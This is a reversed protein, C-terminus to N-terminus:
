PANGRNSTADFITDNTLKGTYLMSCTYGPMAAPGDGVSIVTYELGDSLKVVLPKKVPKSNYKRVVGDSAKPDKKGKLIMFAPAIAIALILFVPIFRKM